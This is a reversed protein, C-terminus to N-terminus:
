PPTLSSFILFHAERASSNLLYNFLPFHFIFRPFFWRSTIKEKQRPHKAEVSISLLTFFFCLFQLSFRWFFREEILQRVKEWQGKTRNNIAGDTYCELYIGWLLFILLPPPTPLCTYPFSSNKTWFSFMVSIYWCWVFHENCLLIVM